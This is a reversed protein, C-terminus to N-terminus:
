YHVLNAQSIPQEAHLVGSRSSRPKACDPLRPRRTQSRSGDLPGRTNSSGCDIMPRSSSSRLKSPNRPAISSPGTASSRSPSAPIPFVESHFAHRAAAASREYRTSEQRGISASASSAYAASPSRNPRSRPSAVRRAERAVADHERPPAAASPARPAAAKAARPRGRWARHGRPATEHVATAPQCRRHGTARDRRRSRARTRREGGVVPAFRATRPSASLPSPRRRGARDQVPVARPGSRARGSRIVRAPPARGAAPPGGPLADMRDPQELTKMGASASVREESELDRSRHDFSAAQPLRVVLDRDRRAQVIQHPLPQLAQWRRRTLRRLDNCRQRSRRQREDLCNSSVRHSCDLRRGLRSDEFQVITAQQERM